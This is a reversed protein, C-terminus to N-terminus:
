RGGSASSELAEEFRDDGWFLERNGCVFTPAGFIGLERAVDTEAVYRKAIAPDRARELCDRSMGLTSVIRSLVAPQGPDQKDLFWTRYIERVLPECWGESAALTALHSANSEPDIPYPPPGAFPINFRAARREIDRWMYALKSPKGIFPSNNQEVLLTRLSFPRWVLEVGKAAALASARNVSLYTYTSGIFFFFDIRRSM